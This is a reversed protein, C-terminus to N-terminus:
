TTGERDTDPSSGERDTQSQKQTTERGPRPRCADILEMEVVTRGNEIRIRPAEM